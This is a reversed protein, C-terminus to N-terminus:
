EQNNQLWLRLVNVLVSNIGVALATYEGFNIQASQLYTVLTGLLAISLGRYASKMDRSDISFSKSKKM